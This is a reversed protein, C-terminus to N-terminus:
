IMPIGNKIFACAGIAARLEADNPHDQNIGGILKLPGFTNFGRCGYTALTRCGRAETIEKMGAAYDKDNRSCTYLFFVPTNDPVRRAYGIVNKYFSGGVIGSAFGICDYATLDVGRNKEADFCDIGYAEAVAKVLKETNGHHKSEYIIVTKM